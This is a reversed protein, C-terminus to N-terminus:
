DLPEPEIREGEVVASVDSFWVHASLLGDRRHDLYIVLPGLQSRENWTFSLPPTIGGRNYTWQLINSQDDLSLRYTDGPTYGGVDGYTITLRRAEGDGIPLPQMGDDSLTTNEDWVLHFPFILWYSDNIFWEDVTRVAAPSDPGVSRHNFTFPTEVDDGSAEHLTVQESAPEWEWARRVSVGPLEANFTWRLSEVTEWQGLGHHEAVQRALDDGPAIVTAAGCALCLNALILPLYRM